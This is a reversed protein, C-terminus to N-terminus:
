LTNKDSSPILLLSATLPLLDTRPCLPSSRLTDVYVSLFSLNCASLSIQEAFVVLLGHDYRDYTITLFTLLCAISEDLNLRERQAAPLRKSLQYYVSTVLTELKGISMEANVDQCAHLGNERIAEIANWIDVLDVSCPPLSLSLRYM